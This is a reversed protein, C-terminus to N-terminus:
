LVVKMEQRYQFSPLFSIEAFTDFSLETFAPFIHRQDIFAETDAEPLREAVFVGPKRYFLFIGCCNDSLFVAQFPFGLPFVGSGKGPVTRSCM